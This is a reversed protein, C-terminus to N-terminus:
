AKYKLGRLKVNSKELVFQEYKELHHAPGSVSDDIFLSNRDPVDESIKSAINVAGGAIDKGGADLKFLLVDGRAIGVSVQDDGKRMYLLIEEALAIAESDRDAVFIGLEGNSKVLDVDYKVAIENLLANVVVWDTLQDLLLREKKHYVKVLLVVKDFFYGGLKEQARASTKMQKLALFFDSSFAFPYFHNPNLEAPDPLKFLHFDNGLDDYDVTFFKKDLESLDERPSLLPHYKSDLESKFTESVVIEKAETFNEAVAEVLDVEEGFMGQGIEWFKGRHMSMGVQVPGRHIVKQAAAMRDLLQHTSVSDAPYFMQSNDAAWLGVGRGGIQKGMAYVVEKPQSVLDLVELLNREATLRSLGASDTSVIFGQRELPELIVRQDHRTKASQQWQSIISVPIPGAIDQRLDALSAIIKRKRDM